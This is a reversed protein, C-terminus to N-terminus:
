GLAPFDVGDRVTLSRAVSAVKALVLDLIHVHGNETLLTGLHSLIRRSNAFDIHHPFSNVLIFEFRQDPLFHLYHRRGCSNAKTDSRRTTSIRRIAISAQTTRTLLTVRMQELVVAWMSSGGSKDCITVHWCCLLNTKPLLPSGYGIPM